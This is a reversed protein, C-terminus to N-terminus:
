FVEECYALEWGHFVIIVKKLKISGYPPLALMKCAFDDNAYQSLQKEADAIKIAVDKELAKDKVSRPIYKFEILWAYEMDPYRAVFPKLIMDAYGKNMEEESAAIYYDYINMYALYFAKVVKENDMYDRLKTQAKILSEIFYFVPKFEGTYAMDALNDKLKLIDFSFHYAYYVSERIYEFIMRRISENPIVLWPRGKITRGSHTLLGFYYLLSIFNDPDIIRDFPFSSVIDSAIGGDDAIKSLSEFNGNLKKDMIILYRLKGYDMRLNDDILNRPIKQSDTAEKIFYLVADSNYVSNDSDFSFIYHDYWKKMVELAKTKDIKLEGVSIYYDLIDNVDKETFGLISNFTVSNTINDGINFGSTVDDMTVPSVGTIFLRALGSGIGSTLMKLNTFFQKFYGAQRTIKKYEQEGFDTLLTNTFNDYEDILLYIKYDTERLKSALIHLKEHALFSKDLEILVEEPIYDKYKKVFTDLELLCYRNFDEQIKEKEKLIASFNFYLVMYKGREETPHELIWTDHFLENFRNKYKIDYYAHLTTLFLSKGFRRPRILFIYPTKEVDPIFMSKDVYYDNHYNVYEFDSKGYPIRKIKAMMWEKKEYKAYHLSKTL